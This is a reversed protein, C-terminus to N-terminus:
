DRSLQELMPHTTQLPDDLHLVELRGHATERDLVVTSWGAADVLGPHEGVFAGRVAARTSQPARQVAAAVEADDALRTM